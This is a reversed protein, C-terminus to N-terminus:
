LFVFLNAISLQLYRGVTEYGTGLRAEDKQISARLAELLNFRTFQFMLLYLTALTASAILSLMFVRKFQERAAILTLLAVVCFFLGIFVTTYTMLMAFGLAIGTLIAYLVTRDSSIARYFLYLSLIPFVSFPGDMSTTTFMVFNPTILFLALAYRGVSEGYMKQALGYIPIVTLSTFCISALSASLLNYGFLKSVIWLFLIGGPPHTQAHGSLTKFVEPKAYDRLFSRVGLLDVKPVDRYYEMQTRTYPHLFAPLQKGDVVRYGDIMSVSIGIILFFGISIGLLWATSVSQQLFIRRCLFLFGILVILAPLMWLSLNTQPEAFLPVVHRHFKVAGLNTSVFRMWFDLFKHYVCFFLALCLCQIPISALFPAFRSQSTPRM